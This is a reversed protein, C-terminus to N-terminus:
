RTQEIVELLARGRLIDLLVRLFSWLIAVTRRLSRERTTRAYMSRLYELNDVDTFIQAMSVVKTIFPM